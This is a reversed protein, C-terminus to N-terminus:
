IDRLFAEVVVSGEAVRTMTTRLQASNPALDKGLTTSVAKLLFKRKAANEPTAPPANKYATLTQRRRALAERVVGLDEGAAVVAGGVRGYLSGLRGQLATRAPWVGIMAALCLLFGAGGLLLFVAGLIRRLANM